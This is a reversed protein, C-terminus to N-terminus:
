QKQIYQVRPMPSLTPESVVSVMPISTHEEGHLPHNEVTRESSHTSPISFDQHSHHKQRDQPRRELGQTPTHSAARTSSELQENVKASLDYPLKDPVRPNIPPTRDQSLGLFITPRSIHYTKNRGPVSIIILVCHSRSSTSAKSLM